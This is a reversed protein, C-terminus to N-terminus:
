RLKGKTPYSSAKKLKAIIWANRNPKAVSTLHAKFDEDVRISLIEKNRDRM